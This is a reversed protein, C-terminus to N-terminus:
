YLARGPGCGFNHHGADGLIALSRGDFRLAHLLHQSFRSVPVACYVRLVNAYITGAGGPRGKRTLCVLLALFPLYVPASMAVPHWRPYVFSLNLPVICKYLYFWFAWGAGALRSLFGDTRVIDGAIAKTYQFWLSVAGFVLALVFFPLSRAIDRGSISGRRWWAVALFLPPLM